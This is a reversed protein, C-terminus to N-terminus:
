CRLGRTRKQHKVAQASVSPDSHSFRRLQPVASEMKTFQRIIEVGASESIRLLFLVAPGTMSFRGQRKGRGTHFSSGLIIESKFGILGAKNNKSLCVSRSTGTYSGTDSSRANQLVPASRGSMIITIRIRSSSTVGTQPSSGPM